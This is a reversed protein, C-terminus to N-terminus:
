TKAYDHNWFHKGWSDASGKTAQTYNKFHGRYSWLYISSGVFYAAFLLAGIFIIVSTLPPTEKNMTMNKKVGMFYVLAYLSFLFALTAM